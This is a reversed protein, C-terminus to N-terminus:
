SKLPMLSGFVGLENSFSQILSNSSGRSGVEIYSSHMMSPASFAIRPSSYLRAILMNDFSGSILRFTAKYMMLKKFTYDNFTLRGLSESIWVTNFNRFHCRRIDGHHKCRIKQPTRTIVHRHNELIGLILLTKQPYQQHLLSLLHKVVKIV